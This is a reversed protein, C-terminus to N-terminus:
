LVHGWTRGDLARRVTSPTVGYESALIATAEGLASRRRIDRVAGETLVSNHHDAGRRERRIGRHSGHRRKAVMDASNEGASGVFLHDPNVCPPNDCRHCVFLGKPIPGNREEWAYRHAYVVRATARSTGAQFKGYGRRERFVSATWVWCGDPSSKDVKAWFRESTTRKAMVAGGALHQGRAPATSAAGPESRNEPNMRGACVIADVRALDKGRGRWGPVEVVTLGAARLVNAINGLRM